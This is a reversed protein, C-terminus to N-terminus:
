ISFGKFSFWTRDRAKNACQYVLCPRMKWAIYGLVGVSDYSPLLLMLLYLLPAGAGTARGCAVYPWEIFWEAGAAAPRLRHDVLRKWQM